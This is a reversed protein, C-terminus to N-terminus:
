DAEKRSNRPDTGSRRGRCSDSSEVVQEEGTTRLSGVNDESEWGILVKWCHRLRL